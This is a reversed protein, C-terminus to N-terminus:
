WCQECVSYLFYDIVEHAKKDDPDADLKALADARVKDCPNAAVYERVKALCPAQKTDYTDWCKVFQGKDNPPRLPCKSCMGRPLAVTTCTVGNGM